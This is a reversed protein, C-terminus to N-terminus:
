RSIACSASAVAPSLRQCLVASDAWGDSASAGKLLPHGFGHLALAFVFAKSISQITFEVGSEGVEYVHGDITALVVGFHRPDAKIPEPIYDAVV